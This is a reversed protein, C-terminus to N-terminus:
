RHSEGQLNSLHIHTTGCDGCRHGAPDKGLRILDLTADRLADAEEQAHAIDHSSLGAAIWQNLQISEPSQAEETSPADTKPAKETKPQDKPKGLLKQIIRTRHQANQERLQADLQQSYYERGDIWTSVCRTFTSLPDGSWVALDADKGVELSGVRDAIGLQIAPNITVFDLADEKSMRGEAYKYAKAAEAAMRRALENSDSNYSTLVGVEAQLPGAYAIADQVEVKFAWWDSFISAGIAHKKVHEAVKYVELGHQFTGIKFDFEEALLCLMLIEDQRYSHCHILRDGALIEVMADLELDRRTLM